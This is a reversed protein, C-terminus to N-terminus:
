PRPADVAACHLVRMGWTGFPFVVDRTGGRWQELAARYRTRFHREVKRLRDRVTRVKAAFTPLIGFRREYSLARQVFSSALVAARGLFVRGASKIDRHAKEVYGAVLSGIRQRWKGARRSPIPRPVPKTITLTLVDPCSGDERFYSTPREVDLAVDGWRVFGPWQEPKMVLGATVPNAIVYAIKDEVDDDTVLRVANSPEAAWLNEWQGQSANIAKATLRHLERLFEPLLGKPDTVVLHHHNSMVCAAHLLVGTKQMALALCYM